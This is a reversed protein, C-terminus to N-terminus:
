RYTVSIRHCVAFRGAPRRAPAHRHRTEVRLGKFLRYCWAVLGASSSLARPGATEALLLLPILEAPLSM